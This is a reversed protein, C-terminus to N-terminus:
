IDLIIFSFNDTVAPTMAASALEEAAQEAPKRLVEALIQASAMEWVGDTCLFFRDGSAALDEGCFYVPDPEDVGLASTVVNKNPMMRMADEDIMGKDLMEQVLSHDHSIKLLRGNKLRYVRSDGCNLVFCKEKEITLSALTAGMHALAPEGRARLRMARCIGSLIAGASDCDGTGGSLKLEDLVVEAAIEGGGMGGMGDVVAFFGEAVPFDMAAPATMTTATVGNIFLGDQNVHRVPGKTTFFTAKMFPM